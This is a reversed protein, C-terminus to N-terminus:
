KLKLSQVTELLSDFNDELRSDFTVEGKRCNYNHFGVSELKDQNEECWQILTGGIRADSGTWNQRICNAISVINESVTVKCIEQNRTM